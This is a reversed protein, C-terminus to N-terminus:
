PEALLGGPAGETFPLSRPSGEDDWGRDRGVPRYGLSGLSLALTGSVHMPTGQSGHPM